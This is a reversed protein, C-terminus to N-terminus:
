GIDEFVNLLRCNSTGRRKGRYSYPSINGYLANSNSNEKVEAFRIAGM